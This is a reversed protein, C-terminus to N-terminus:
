KWSKLIVGDFIFAQKLGMTVSWIWTSLIKTKKKSLLPPPHIKKSSRTQTTQIQLHQRNTFVNKLIQVDEKLHGHMSM